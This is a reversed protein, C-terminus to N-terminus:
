DKDTNTYKGKNGLFEPAIANGSQCEVTGDSGSCEDEPQEIENQLLYREKM